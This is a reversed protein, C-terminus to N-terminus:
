ASRLAPRFRLLFAKIAAFIALVKRVIAQAIKRLFHIKQPQTQVPPQAPVEAISLRTRVKEMVRLALARCTEDTIVAIIKNAEDFKRDLCLEKMRNLLVKTVFVNQLFPALSTLTAEFGLKEFMEDIILRCRYTRSKLNTTSIMGNIEDRLRLHAMFEFPLFNSQDSIEQVNLGAIDVLHWAEQEWGKALYRNIIRILIRVLELRESVFEFLENVRTLNGQNISLIIPILKQHYDDGFSLSDLIMNAEEPRGQSTLSSILEEYITQHDSLSSIKNLLALVQNIQGKSAYIKALIVFIDQKLSLLEICNALEQIGSYNDDHILEIVFKIVLHSKSDIDLGNSNILSIFESINKTKICKQCGIEIFNSMNICCRTESFHSLLKSLNNKEIYRDAIDEFFYNGALYYRTSVNALDIASDVFGKLLHIKILFKDRTKVYQLDPFYREAARQIIGFDQENKYLAGLIDIWLNESKESNYCNCTTLSIGDSQAIRLAATINGKALYARALKELAKERESADTIRKLFEEAEELRDFEIYKNVILGILHLPNQIENFCQLAKDLEDEFLYAEVKDYPGKDTHDDPAITLHLPEIEGRIHYVYQLFRKAEKKDELTNMLQIAKATQGESLYGNCAEGIFFQKSDGELGNGIEYITEVNNLNNKCGLESMWYKYYLYAFDDEDELLIKTVPEYERGPRYTHITLAEINLLNAPGQRNESFPQQGAKYADLIKKKVKTVKVRLTVFSDSPDAQISPNALSPHLSRNLNALERSYRHCLLNRWEPSHRAYANHQFQYLYTSILVSIEVPTNQVPLIPEYNRWNSTDLPSIVNNNTSMM